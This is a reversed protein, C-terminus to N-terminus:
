REDFRFRAQGVRADTLEDDGLRHRAVRRAEALTARATRLDDDGEILGVEGDQVLNGVHPKRVREHCRAPQALAEGAVDRGPDRGVEAHVQRVVRRLARGIRVVSGEPEVRPRSVAIRAGLRIAVGPRPREDVLHRVRDTVLRDASHERTDGSRDTWVLRRRDLGLERHVSGGRRRQRERRAREEVMELRDVPVSRPSRKLARTSVSSSAASSGSRAAARAANAASSAAAPDQPAGSGMAPASVAHSNGVAMSCASTAAAHSASRSTSSSSM